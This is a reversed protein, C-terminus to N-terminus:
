PKSGGATASEAMLPVIVTFIAGGKEGNRVTLEGDM